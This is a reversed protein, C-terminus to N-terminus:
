KRPYIIGRMKRKLINIDREENLHCRACLTVLNEERNDQKNQNKHHVQLIIRILKINNRSAYSIMYDDCEVFIKKSDYYGRARHRVKCNKCLYHDRKLIAPRITDTWNESYLHKKM